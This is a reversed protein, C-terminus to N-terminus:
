PICNRRNPYFREIRSTVASIVLEVIMSILRLQSFQSRYIICPERYTEATSTLLTSQEQAATSRRPIKNEIASRNIPLYKFQFKLKRRWNSLTQSVANGRTFNQHHLGNEDTCLFYKKASRSLMHSMDLNRCVLQCFM